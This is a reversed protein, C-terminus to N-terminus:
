IKTETKSWPNKETNSGRCKDIKWSITVSITTARESKFVIAFLLYFVIVELLSFSLCSVISLAFFFLFLFRISFNLCIFNLAIVTFAFSFLGIDSVYYQLFIYNSIRNREQVLIIKTLVTYHVIVYFNYIETFEYVIIREHPWNYPVM